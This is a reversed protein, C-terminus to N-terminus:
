AKFGKVIEVLSPRGIAYNRRSTRVQCLGGGKKKRKRKRKRKQIRLRPGEREM